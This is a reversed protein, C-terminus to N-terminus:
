GEAKQTLKRQKVKQYTNDSTKLEEMTPAQAMEKDERAKLIKALRKQKFDERSQLWSKRQQAAEINKTLEDKTEEQQEEYSMSAFKLMKKEEEKQELIEQDRDKRMYRWYVVEGVTQAGIFFVGAAM